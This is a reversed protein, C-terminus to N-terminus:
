GGAALRVHGLGAAERAPDQERVRLHGEGGQGEVAVHQDVDTGRERALRAQVPEQDGAQDVGVGVELQGVDAEHRAPVPQGGPDAGLETLPSLRAQVGFMAIRGDRRAGEGEGTRGGHAVDGPSGRGRVDEVLRAQRPDDLALAEALVGRAQLRPDGLSWAQVGHRGATAGGHDLAGAGM